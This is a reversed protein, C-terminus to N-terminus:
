LTKAKQQSCYSFPIQYQLSYEQFEKYNHSPLKHNDHSLGQCHCYYPFCTYHNDLESMSCLNKTDDNNAVLPENHTSSLLMAPQKNRKVRYAVLRIGDSRNFVFKSSHLETKQRLSIPIKWRHRRVIGM